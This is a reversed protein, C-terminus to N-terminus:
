ASGAASWGANRGSGRDRVPLASVMSGVPRGSVAQQMRLEGPASALNKTSPQEALEGTVPLTAQV